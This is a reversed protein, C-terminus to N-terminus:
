QRQAERWMQNAQNAGHQQPTQSASPIGRPPPASPLGQPPSAGPTNKSIFNQSPDGHQAMWKQAHVAAIAPNLTNRVTMQIQGRSMGLGVMEQVAQETKGNRIQDRLGPMAREINYNADQRAGRDAGAEPGAYYGSSLQAAGTFPVLTKALAVGRDGALKEGTAYSKGIQYAGHGLQWLSELGAAMAFHGVVLGANEFYQGLTHAGPHIVHQGMSDQGIIVDVLPRLFPSLKNRTMDGPHMFWGLFEEGVKGPPIRAYIGRGDSDNGMHIRAQKGPENWTQPLFSFANLPNDAVHQFGWKTKQLWDDYVSAMAEPIGIQSAQQGANIATQFIANGILFFGVDMVYASFAKRRLATQADKAAEPGALQEIQARIHQPAGNLMDKIVGLNGLTFSRSFLVLNAAMNMHRSLNEPPLAGAYRNAVHAAMTGAVEPSFGKAMWADRMQAYIGVQLNFVKDWLFKQHIAHLADGARGLMSKEGIADEMLTTPDANWSQGIPALGDKIAQRMYDPDNRYQAVAKDRWMTLARGNTVPLARGIEVALHIFPSYMIASMMGGKARMLAKYVDAPKTSLVSRIPGEFEKSVRISQFGTGTWKQFSPHNLTFYEAPNLTGPLDGHVVLDVGVDKGVKEIASMFDSGAVARENRALAVVLSRIDRVLLASSGKEAKAAAETQEPTLHEREQPGSTNLNGAFEHLDKGTNVGSASLFNGSEDRLVIQRAFYYPLGKANQSVMGREQMRQWNLIAMANLQEIAARQPENLGAIGQKSADFAERAKAHTAAPEDALRQEFVSQADLNRGMQEREAPTFNKVLARDVQGFEFSVRRLANAFQFAYAQARKSGLTMPSVFGAISDAIKGAHTQIAKGAKAIEDRRSFLPLGEEGIAKRMAPSIDVSHVTLTRDLSSTDHRGTHDPMDYHPNDVVLDSRGVKAGYKGVIKQTEKPLMNDYFGRMGEGGVKLDDGRLVKVGAPQDEAQDGEGRLIRDALEKGVVSELKEPRVIEQDLVTGDNHDYASLGIDDGDKWHYLEAVKKSLDYREAHVDGPAWALRDYGNDAAYKLMRKMVLSPWSTRFPADPIGQETLRHREYLEDVQQKIETRRAVAKEHAKVAADTQEDDPHLLNEGERTYERTLDDAQQRIADLDSKYGQKRGSQHWDSQGEEMLLVRKGDPATHDAFRIHALVNPEDWHSSRYGGITHATEAKEISGGINQARRQAAQESSFMGDSVGNPRIVRWQETTIKEPPLTILMERYNQGGPLTYDAYKPERGALAPLDRQNTLDALRTADDNTLSWDRDDFRQKLAAAESEEAATLPPPKGLVVERVDLEHARVYEAIQDKTVSKQGRLWNPLDMWKLEEPKVGPARSLMALMQEGSGKAQKLADVVRTVGSYLPVRVAEDDRLSHLINPKAPDFTGRNGTASKVQSEEFPIWVNHPQGGMKGGTDQIGDYGFGKLVKTVWDPISTWATSNKQTELDSKLREIWERPEAKSKDWMDGGMKSPDFRQRAAAKELASIVNAPVSHADLPKKIALYVPYVGPSSAHPDHMEVTRTDVGALKLVKQFGSEESFMAGSTLWSEVLAALPNGRKERLAQDYGGNGHKRGPPALEVDGEDWHVRPALEAIRQRQETPLFHWARDLPVATRAGAPKIRFWNNYDHDEDAISTDSKNTSYSSAMEPSDTFFAMPGSTARGKKFATGVRDPRATGHYMRIPDGNEDVAKSGGFWAKFAPMETQPDRRSYKEPMPEKQVEALVRARNEVNAVAGAIDKDVRVGAHVETPGGVSNHDSIRVNFGGSMISPFSGKTEAVYRRRGAGAADIPRDDPREFRLYTSDSLGSRNVGSLIFGHREVAQIVQDAANRIPASGIEKIRDLAQTRPDRRSFQEPESRLVEEFADYASKAEYHGYPQGDKGFQTVRWGDPPYNLDKSVLQVAGDKDRFRVPKGADAYQQALERRTKGRALLAQWGADDMKPRRSFALQGDPMSVKQGLVDFTKGDPTTTPAEPTPAASDPASAEGQPEPQAGPQTPFGVHAMAAAMPDRPGAAMLAERSGPLAQKGRMVANFVDDATRYGQGHLVQGLGRVFNQMRQIGAAMLTQAVLGRSLAAEAMRAVAEERMEASSYGLDRLHARRTRTGDHKEGLWRDAGSLLAARQGKTLLDLSPDMLAHTAEHWLKSAVEGPPTDLAFDILRKAVNYAGDAPKGAADFIRDMFRLGVDPPLGMFRLLAQSADYLRRRADKAEPTLDKGDVRADSADADRISFLSGQKRESVNDFLGLGETSKQVAKVRTGMDERAQVAQKTSGEAGPLVAQGAKELGLKDSLLPRDRERRSYQIDDNFPHDGDLLGGKLKDSLEDFFQAHTKNAPDIGHEDSLRDIESNHKVANEHDALAAEDFHSYSPEYRLDGELKELLQNITPREDGLEPFYGAEGARETARDLSLGNKNMLGPRFSAKDLLYKVDGGPDNLGGIRKLFNALREPPKPVPVYPSPAGRKQTTTETRRDLAETPTLTEVNPAQEAVMAKAEPVKDPSALTEVVVNGADDKGQVVVADGGQTAEAKTEPYGLLKAVDDDGIAPADRFQAAKDSSTTLLTGEPREIKQVGDPLAAPAPQGAALFVADKPNQPDALAHVQAAIDAAPEVTTPSIAKGDPASPSAVGQPPITGGDPAAPAPEGGPTVWDNVGEAAEGIGAVGQRLAPDAIPARPRLLEGARAVTHGAHMAGPILAGAIAQADMDEGVGEFTPKGGILNETIKQVQSIGVMTGAHAVYTAVQNLLPGKVLAPLANIWLTAQPAMLGANVLGSGLGMAHATDPDTGSELAGRVTGDYSQSFAIGAATPVGGLLAGVVLPASGGIIGAVRVARDAEHSADIPFHRQSVSSAWDDLANAESGLAKGVPRLAATLGTTGPAPMSAIQTAYQQRFAAKQDPSLYQYGTPDEQDPVTEGADIRDMVGTQARALAQSNREGAEPIRTAGEAVRPIGAVMSATGEIASGALKNGAAGWTGQGPVVTGAPTFFEKPDYQAVGDAFPRTTVGTVYPKNGSPLNGLPKAPEPEPSDTWENPNLNYWAPKAPPPPADTDVQAVRTPLSDPSAWDDAESPTVWDNVGNPM